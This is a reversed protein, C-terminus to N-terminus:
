KKRGTLSELSRAFEQWEDAAQATSDLPKVPMKAVPRPAPVPRQVPQPVSRKPEPAKEIRAPAAPVTEASPPVTPQRQVITRAIPEVTQQQETAVPADVPASVNEELSQLLKQIALDAADPAPAPKPTPEVVQPRASTEPASAPDNLEARLNGYNLQDRKLGPQVRGLEDALPRLRALETIADDLQQRVTFERSALALREKELADEVQSKVNTRGWVFGILIGVLAIAVAVLVYITAHSGM